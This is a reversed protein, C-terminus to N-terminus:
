RRERLRLTVLAAVTAGTLAVGALLAWWWPDVYTLLWVWVVLLPVSLRWPWAVGRGVLMLVSAGVGGFLWPWMAWGSLWWAVLALVATGILVPWRVAREVAARRRNRADDRAAARDGVAALWDLFSRGGMVGAHARVQLLAVQCTLVTDHGASSGSSGTPLRIAGRLVGEVM